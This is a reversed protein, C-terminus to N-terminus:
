ADPYPLVVIEIKRTITMNPLCSFIKRLEPHIRMKDM